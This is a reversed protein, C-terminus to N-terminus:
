KHLIQQLNYHNITFFKNKVKKRSVRTTSAGQIVIDNVDIDLRSEWGEEITIGNHDNRELFSNIFSCANLKIISQSKEMAVNTAM